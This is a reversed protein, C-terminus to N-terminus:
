SVTAKAFFSEDDSDGGTGSWSKTNANAGVKPVQSSKAYQSKAGGWTKPINKSEGFTRRQEDTRCDWTGRM